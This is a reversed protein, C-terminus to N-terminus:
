WEFQGNSNFGDRSRCADAELNGNVLKDFM